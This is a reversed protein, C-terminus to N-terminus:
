EISTVGERNDSETDGDFIKLENYYTKAEEYTHIDSMVFFCDKRQSECTDYYEKLAKMMDLKDTILDVLYKETDFNEDNLNSLITDDVMTGLEMKINKIQEDRKAKKMQKEMEIREPHFKYAHNHTRFYEKNENTDFFTYFDKMVNFFNEKEENTSENMAINRLTGLLCSIYLNDEDRDIDSYAIFRVIHFLFLNNYERYLERFNEEEIDFFAAHINQNIGLKNLVRVYKEMIYNGRNMDFYSSQISKREKDGFKHLRENLFSLTQSKELISLKRLLINREEETINSSKAREEMEKIQRLRAEKYEPSKLTAVLNKLLDDKELSTKDFESKAHLIENYRERANNLIDVCYEFFTISKDKEYYFKEKITDTNSGCRKFMDDIDPLKLDESLNSENYKSVIEDMIQKNIGFESLETWLLNENDEIMTRYIELVEDLQKMKSSVERM